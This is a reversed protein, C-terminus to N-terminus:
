FVWQLRDFLTHFEEPDPNRDTASICMDIGLPSTFLDVLRHMNSGSRFAIVDCTLHAPDAM